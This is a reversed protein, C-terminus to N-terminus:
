PRRPWRVGASDPHAALIHVVSHGILVPVDWHSKSSLRFVDLQEANYYDAPEPTNADDPLLAGPMDKWLFKQFTRAKHELIPYRSLLM